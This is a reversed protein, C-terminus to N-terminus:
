NKKVLTAIYFGDSLYDDPYIALGLEKREPKLNAATQTKVQEFEPHQQLFETVTQQNEEDLITCTSYTLIGGVKLHPAVANLIEVQIRHLNKSDALQKEYKVEPKRRMLGIGSCPADVLIKDFSEKEFVESVKRADLQKAQVQTQVQARKANEQILKVKHKHIDLGYVMGDTLNAAIQTTKGGPAACADLVKDNPAINMSEVALMASEDQVIVKGAKFTESTPIFGSEIQLALPTVLSPTAVIQEKALSEIVQEKTELKTNIRITQKPAQNISSLISSAKKEGLEKVLQKVLWLPTSTKVSLRELPDNIQEIKPLGKRDIAHLVGTVFKRIGAHGKVKAIEITENFVARKPINDLYLQQYLATLLLQKVWNQLKQPNKIFPVLYYELTLKHQIVGYVINTLLHADRKSLDNSTIAQNLALNSYAGSKEVRELLEVALYRPTKNIKNTM